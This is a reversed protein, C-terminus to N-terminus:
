CNSAWVDKLFIIASDLPDMFTRKGKKYFRNWRDPFFKSRNRHDQVIYM